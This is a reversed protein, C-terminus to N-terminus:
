ILFYDRGKEIRLFLALFLGFVFSESAAKKSNKRDNGRKKKYLNIEGEDFNYLGYICKLLETKGAGVLGTIGFIEGKRVRFNIDKLLDRYRLNKIELVIEDQVQRDSDYVLSADHINKGSMM